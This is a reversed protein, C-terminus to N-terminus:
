RLQAAECGRGRDRFHDLVDDVPRDAMVLKAVDHRRDRQEDDDAKELEDEDIQPAVKRAHGRQAHLGVEPVIKVRVELAQLDGEM